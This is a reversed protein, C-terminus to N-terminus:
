VKGLATALTEVSTPMLLMIPQQFHYDSHDMKVFDWKRRWQDCVERTEPQDFPRKYVFQGFLWKVDDCYMAFEDDDTKFWMCETLTNMFDMMMIGNTTRQKEVVNTDTLV